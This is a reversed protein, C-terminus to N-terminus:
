RVDNLIQLLMEDDVMKRHIYAAHIVNTCAKLVAAAVQATSATSAM